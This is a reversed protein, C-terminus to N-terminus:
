WGDIRCRRRFQIWHRCLAPTYDAEDDDDHRAPLMSIGSGREGCKGITWRRQCTKQVVDRIRLYNSFTHEHQDDQKQVAVHPPGYSYMVGATDKMDPEDLKSLKRSLLSTATCNTDQPTNGGPSKSKLWHGTHRTRRVQITQSIFPLLDYLQQKSPHHRWSKNLVARQM